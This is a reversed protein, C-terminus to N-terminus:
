VVRFYYGLIICCYPFLSSLTVQRVGVMRSIRRFGLHGIPTGGIDTKLLVLIIFLGITHCDMRTYLLVGVAIRSVM